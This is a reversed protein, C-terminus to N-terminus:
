AYSLALTAISLKTEPVKLIQTGCAELTAGTTLVDDVLLVHKAKIEEPKKVSFIDSVNEWRDIRSKRTQTQSMVMRQLATTNVPIEFVAGMGRAIMLSQNYGRKYEKKPHLPVPVIVDTDAFDTHLLNSAFHKGMEIGIEKKGLYKLRHILKQFVSGRQFYYFSTANEVSLRGWFTQAVLNDKYSHFNTRPIENICHTCIVNENRLLGKGCSQCVRPYILSVADGLWTNNLNIKLSKRMNTM